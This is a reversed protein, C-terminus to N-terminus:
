ADPPQDAENEDNGCEKLGYDKAIADARDDIKQQAEALSAFKELDRDRAADVVRELQDIEEAITDHLKDITARDDAPPEINRFEEQKDRTWELGEELQPIARNFFEAESHAETATAQLKANRKKAEANQEKCFADAKAIFDERSVEDGGGGGCAALGFTLGVLIAVRRM